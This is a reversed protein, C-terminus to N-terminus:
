GKLHQILLIFNEGVQLQTESGRGVVELPHFNIMNTCNSYFCLGIQRIPHANRTITNKQHVFLSALVTIVAITSTTNIGDLPTILYDPGRPPPRIGM